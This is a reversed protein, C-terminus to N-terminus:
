EAKSSRGSNHLKIVGARSMQLAIQEWTAGEERAKEILDPRKATDRAIRALQSLASAM